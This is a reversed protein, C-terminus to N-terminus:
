YYYSTQDLNPKVLHLSGGYHQHIRLKQIYENKYRIYQVTINRDPIIHLTFLDHLTMSTSWGNYTLSITGVISNLNVRRTSRLSFDGCNHPVLTILSEYLHRGQYTITLHPQSTPTSKLHVFSYLYLTLM